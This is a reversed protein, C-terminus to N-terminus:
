SQTPTKNAELFWLDQEAGRLVETLIDETAPDKAKQSEGVMERMMACYKGYRKSLAKVHDRGEIADMDYDPIQSTSATQRVTGHPREGLAAAREALDDSWDRLHDALDDFLEHRSIFQPGRITWHAQKVQSALDLTTGLCVDLVKCLHTRVEPSLDIRTQFTTM